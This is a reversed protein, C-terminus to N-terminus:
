TEHKNEGKSVTDLLKILETFSTTYSTGHMTYLYHNAQQVFPSKCAQQWEEESVQPLPYTM